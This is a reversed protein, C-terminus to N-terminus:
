LKIFKLFDDFHDESLVDNTDSSNYDYPIFFGYNIVTDFHPLSIYGYLDEHVLKGTLRFYSDDYGLISKILRFHGIRDEHYLRIIPVRSINTTEKCFSAILSPQVLLTDNFDPSCRNHIVSASVSTFCFNKDYEYLRSEMIKINMEKNKLIVLLIIVVLILAGIIIKQIKM